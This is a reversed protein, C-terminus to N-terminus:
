IQAVGGEKARDFMWKRNRWKSPRRCWGPGCKFGTMLPVSLDTAEAFLRSKPSPRFPLMNSSLGGQAWGNDFDVLHETM